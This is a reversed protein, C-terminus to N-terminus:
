PPPALLLAIHEDGPLGAFALLEGPGGAAPRRWWLTNGPGTGQLVHLAARRVLGPAADADALPLVLPAGAREPWWQGLAGVGSATVGGPYPVALLAAERHEVGAHGRVAELAIREIATFWDTADFAGLAGSPEAGFAAAITLPFGRGVRDVSPLLVGAWGADGCAGPALAFRWSPADRWLAPWGAGLAGRRAHLARQLWADWPALFEPPLRRSAFDGLAPLKGFWGPPAGSLAPAPM